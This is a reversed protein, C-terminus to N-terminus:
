EEQEAKGPWPSHRVRDRIREELAPILALNGRLLSAGCARLSGAVAHAAPATASYLDRQSVASPQGTVAELDALDFYRLPAGFDAPNSRPPFRGDVLIVLWVLLPDRPYWEVLVGIDPGCYGLQFGGYQFRRVCRRYDFDDVLFAFALECAARSERAHAASKAV